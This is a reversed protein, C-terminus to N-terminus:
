KNKFSISRTWFYKKPFFISYLFRYNIIIYNFFFSYVFIEFGSFKKEIIFSLFFIFLVVRIYPLSSKFSISPDFSVLSNLNLYIYIFLFFYFFKNNLLEFKKFIFIYCLFYIAFYSCLLDPLFPGSILTIPFLLIGISNVKLLNINFYKNMLYM